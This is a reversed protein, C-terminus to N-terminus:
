GTSDSGSGAIIVEMIRSAYRRRIKAALDREHCNHHEDDHMIFILQDAPFEVLADAIATLTSEDGLRGSASIGQEVWMRHLVATLRDTAEQRATLDDNTLWNTRSTLLPAIVRVQDARAEAQLVVEPVSAVDLIARDIVVLVRRTNRRAMM